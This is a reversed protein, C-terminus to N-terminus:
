SEINEIISDTSNLEGIKELYKPDSSYGELLKRKSEKIANCRKDFDKVPIKCVVYSKPFFDIKKYVFEVRAVAFERGKKAEVLVYEGPKINDFPCIYIYKPQGPTIDRKVGKKFRVLVYRMKISGCPLNVM